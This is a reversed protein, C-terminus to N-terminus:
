ALSLKGLFVSSGFHRDLTFDLLLVNERFSVSIVCREKQSRDLGRRGRKFRTVCFKLM